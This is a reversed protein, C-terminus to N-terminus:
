NFVIKRILNNGWDCVLLNGSSNFALGMPNSFKAVTGLGDAFGISVGAITSVIGVPTIKKIKHNNFESVFLNGTSDFALGIPNNLKATTGTGNFDGLESGVFTSVSGTFTIKKIKHNGTDAVFINGQADIALGRLTKFKAVTGAGNEDGEISGAFNSVVGISSIKKIKNNYIDSVYLTGSSDFVLGWPGNLKANTGTANFDGAISGIFTSVVGATTIKKIKDNGTDAVYMIGSADIAIGRPNKFKANSGTGDQDGESSGAFTSVLGTPTIKKIKNNLVDSVYMNGTADIVIDNPLTFQAATGTGNSDGQTSGALTSVTVTPNPTELTTAPEDKKSCSSAFLSIVLIAITTKITKSVFQSNSKLLEHGSGLLPVSSIITTKM